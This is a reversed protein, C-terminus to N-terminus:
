LRDADAIVALMFEGVLRPVETLERSGWATWAGLGTWRSLGTRGARGALGTRTTRETLALKLLPHWRPGFTDMAYEIAEEKTLINGTAITHHLRPPGFLRAAAVKTPPVFPKRPPSDSMCKEAFVRWHNHLQDLNWERLRTPEPDLGLKDPAPGRVTMGKELLVKWMVPNVDFGSGVKFSRGSHSALPRIETVPRRMDESAVFVGNMTGPIDFRGHALSRAATSVNGWGHLLRLRRVDVQGDVVVVFDVDSRDVRWAGLAASGVLYFGTVRGPLLRDAVALYRSVIRDLM